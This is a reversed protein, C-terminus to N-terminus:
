THHFMPGTDTLSVTAIPQWAWARYARVVVCDKDEDYEYSRDDFGYEDMAIRMVRMARSEIREYVM